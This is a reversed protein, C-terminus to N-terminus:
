IKKIEPEDFSASNEEIFHDEFAKVLQRALLPDDAEMEVEEELLSRFAREVAAVMRERAEFDEGLVERAYDWAGFAALDPEIKGEATKRVMENGKKVLDFFKLWQKILRGASTGLIAPFDKNARLEEYTPMRWEDGIMGILKATNTIPLSPRPLESEDEIGFNAILEHISM